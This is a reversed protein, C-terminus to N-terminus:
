YNKNKVYYLLTCTGKDRENKIKRIDKVTVFSFLLGFLKNKVNFITHSHRLIFLFIKDALKYNTYSSLM